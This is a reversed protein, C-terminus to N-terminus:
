EVAADPPPYGAGADNGQRVRRWIWLGSGALLLLPLLSLLATTGLFALRNEESPDFCVSCAQALEM